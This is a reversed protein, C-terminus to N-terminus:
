KVCVLGYNRIILQKFPHRNATAMKDMNRSWACYGKRLLMEFIMSQTREPRDKASDEEIEAAKVRDLCANTEATFCVM